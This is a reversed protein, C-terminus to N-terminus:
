LWGSLKKLQKETRMVALGRQIGYGTSQKKEQCQTKREAESCFGDDGLHRSALSCIGTKLDPRMSTYFKCDKCYIIQPQQLAEIAMKLAEYQLEDEKDRFGVDGTSPNFQCMAQAYKLEHIIEERNM